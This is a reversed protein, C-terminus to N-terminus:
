APSPLMSAEEGRPLRRRNEFLDYIVQFANVTVAAISGTWIGTTSLLIDVVPAIKHLTELWRRVWSREGNTTGARSIHARKAQLNSQIQDVHNQMSVLLEREYSDFTIGQRYARDLLHTYFAAYTNIRRQIEVVGSSQRSDYSLKSLGFELRM